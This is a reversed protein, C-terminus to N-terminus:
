AFMRQLWLELNLPKWLASMGGASEAGLLNDLDKSIRKRDLYASARFDKNAFVDKIKDGNGRLWNHEPTPFGMKDKRWRIKEPLLGGAGARLLYKTWGDHIKYCAPLSFVFEVLRYDVFPTRTEVSFAMSNKDEYRLLERLGYETESRWLATQLNTDMTTGEQGAHKALFAGNVLGIDQIRLISGRVIRDRLLSRVGDPLANYLPLMFAFSSYIPNKTIKRISNFERWFSSFRGASILHALYPNFYTHYGALM